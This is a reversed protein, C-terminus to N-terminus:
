GIPNHTVIKKWERSKLIDKLDFQQTPYLTDEYDFMEWSCVKLKKM